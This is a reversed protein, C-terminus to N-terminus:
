SRPNGTFSVVWEPLQNNLVYRIWFKAHVISTHLWRVADTDETDGIYPWSLIQGVPKSVDVYRELQTMPGRSQVALDLLAVLLSGTTLLAVFLVVLKRRQHTRSATIHPTGLAMSKFDRGETRAAFGAFTTGTKRV